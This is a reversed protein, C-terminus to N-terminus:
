PLYTRHPVYLALKLFSPPFCQSLAVQPSLLRAVVELCIMSRRSGAFITAYNPALEVFPTTEKVLLMPVKGDAEARNASPPALFRRGHRYCYCFASALWAACVIVPSLAGPVLALVLVIDERLFIVRLFRFIGCAASSRPPPTNETAQQSPCLM